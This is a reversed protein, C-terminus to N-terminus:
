ERILKKTSVKGSQLQVIAYYLGATTSKLTLQIESGTADIEQIIRGKADLIRISEM